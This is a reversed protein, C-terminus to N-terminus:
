KKLVELVRKYFEFSKKKNRKLKNKRDVGVLGFKLDYNSSWEFCDLLTWIFYGKLDMKNECINIVEKIHEKIYNCRDYDNEAERCDIGNETIYVPLSYKQCIEEVSQYLGKAYIEHGRESPTSKENKLIKFGMINEADQTVFKRTYYNVGFFDVSNKFDLADTVQNESIWGNELVIGSLDDCYKGNVLPEYFWLNEYQNALDTCFEDDTKLNQFYTHSNVIGLSIGPYESEKLRYLKHHSKLINHAAKFSASYENKIFPHLVGDIYSRHSIRSPQNFSTWLKVRDSFNSLLTEGYKLFYEITETNHWGHTKEYIWLPLDYHFMTIFPEINRKLLEDILRDYFDLGKQNVLACPFIRSWSISFRYSNVGLETLLELDESIRNYSDCAQSSIMKLNPSWVSYTKGDQSDAGEVQTASTSIGWLFGKPISSSHKKFFIFNSDTKM